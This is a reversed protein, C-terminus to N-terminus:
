LHRRAGLWAGAAAHRHCAAAAARRRARLPSSSSSLTAAAALLAAALPGLGLREHPVAVARRRALTPHRWRLSRPLLLLRLSELPLQPQQAHLRDPETLRHLARPPPARRRLRRLLLHHQLHRAECLQRLALAARRHLHLEFQRRGVHDRRVRHRAREVLDGVDRAILQAEGPGRGVADRALELPPALAGWGGRTAFTGFPACGGHRIHVGGWRGGKMHRRWRGGKMHRRWRGGKMHRGWRGGKM